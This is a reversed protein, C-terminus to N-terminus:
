NKEEEKIMFKILNDLEIVGNTIRRKEETTYSKKIADNIRNIRKEITNVKSKGYETLIIKVKREDEKERIKEILNLQEM